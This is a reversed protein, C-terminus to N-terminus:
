ESHIPINCGLANAKPCLAFLFNVKLENCWLRQGYIRVCQTQQCESRLFLEDVSDGKPANSNMTGTRRVDTIEEFKQRM